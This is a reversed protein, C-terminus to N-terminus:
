KNKGGCSPCGLECIIDALERASDGALYAPTEGKLDLGLGSAIFTALHKIEHVLTDLFEAGSTTHGILVVAERMDENAYTFGENPKNRRMKRGAKVLIYDSADLDYLLDLVAEEDYGDPAFIFRAKWRGIYLTRYIM